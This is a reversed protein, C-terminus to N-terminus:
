MGFVLFNSGIGEIQQPFKGNRKTFTCGTHRSLEEFQYEQHQWRSAIFSVVFTSNRARAVPLRKNLDLKPDFSFFIRNKGLAVASWCRVNLMVQCTLM